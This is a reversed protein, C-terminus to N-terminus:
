RIRKVLRALARRVPEPAFPGTRSIQRIRAPDWTATCTERPVLWSRGSARGGDSTYAARVGNRRLMWVVRRDYSGFPISLVDVQHGLVESLRERAGRLERDMSADNARRWDIHDWGHSGIRMGADRLELLQSENLYGLQGFRGACVFFDATLCRKELAPLVVRVDSDNGDDFTIQIPLGTSRSAPGIEDLIAAFKSETSWYPRENPAIHAPIEGIGHFTLVLRGVDRAIPHQGWTM